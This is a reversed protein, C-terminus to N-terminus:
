RKSGKLTGTVGGDKDYVICQILRDGQEWSTLTPYLSTVDLTTESDYPVGVFEEFQAVCFDEATSSASDPSDTDALTKEAFVEGEHPQDCPVVPLKTVESGLSAVSALCDGVKLTNADAAASATIRGAEDRPPGGDGGLFTCGALAPLVFLATAVLSWPWGTKVPMAGATKIEVAQVSAEGRPPMLTVRSMGRVGTTESMQESTLVM